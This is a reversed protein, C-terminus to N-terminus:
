VTYPSFITKHKKRKQLWNLALDTIIDTSYGEIRKKGKTNLFEPNYKVSSDVLVNWDDFYKPIKSLDWRGILCTEYGEKQLM